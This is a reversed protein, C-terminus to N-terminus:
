EVIFGEIGTGGWGSHSKQTIDEPGLEVELSQGSSVDLFTCQMRQNTDYSYTFVIKQGAPRNPPLSFTPSALINVFAPDEGEGQTVRIAVETQGDVLTFFEESRTCPLPTNKQIIISNQEEHRGTTEVFSLHITGYSHNCVDVMKVDELGARISTSVKTPEERGLVLGAHIAAGLAVCEDVNVATTPPKGFLKELRKSVLPVRTSGGVLLVVDIDSPSLDAEDLAMEVLMETRMIKASIAEEFDERTLEFTLSGSPGHLLKRVKERRSLARKCDEAEAEFRAAEEPTSWLEVGHEDEYAANMLDMITHDFDVGGLEHDGQSCVIDIQKGNVDMITVDFTGGGLDYVLVKGGVDNTVAYFLAAATPENIIGLVNVGAMEGAKMVAQRRVEDYFSPVTIVVDQIEGATTSCDNKLKKLILSSLEIPNMEGTGAITVNFEPDGMHRKIKSVVRDASLQRSNVAEIGVLSKDPTDEPFFIVSPTIREGDANPVIEPRGVSNLVALCSYTTGLDIGVIASM